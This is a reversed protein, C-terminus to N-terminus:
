NVWRSFRDRGKVKSRGDGKGQEAKQSKGERQEPGSKWEEVRGSKSEEKLMKLQEEAVMAIEYGEEVEIRGELVGLMTELLTRQIEEPSARKIEALQKMEGGKGGKRKEIRRRM